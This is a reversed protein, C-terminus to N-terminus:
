PEPCVGPGFLIKLIKLTFVSYILIIKKLYIWNVSLFCNEIVTATKKLPYKKNIKEASQDPRQKHKETKHVLGQCHSTLLFWGLSKWILPQGYNVYCLLTFFLLTGLM